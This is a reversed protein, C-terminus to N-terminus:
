PIANRSRRERLGYFIIPGSCMRPTAGIEALYRRQEEIESANLIEAVSESEQQRILIITQPSSATIITPSHTSVIFQHQPYRKLIAILKRSAGRHLFSQPEDIIITRANSSTLVVYLIALVQGVGTGSENLPVTLDDRESKPDHNWVVIELAQHDTPHPRVSIWHIQPFVERVLTNFVIFRERNHQLGNLM